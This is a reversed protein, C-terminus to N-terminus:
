IERWKTQRGIHWGRCIRCRYVRRALHKAKAKRRAKLVALAHDRVDFRAKGDCGAQRLVM